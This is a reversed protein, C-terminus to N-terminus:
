VFQAICATIGMSVAFLLIGMDLFVFTFHRRDKMLLYSAISSLSGLVIVPKLPIFYGTLIGLAAIGAIILRKLM